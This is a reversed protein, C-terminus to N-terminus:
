VVTLIEDSSTADVVPVWSINFTFTANLTTYIGAPVNVTTVHQDVAATDVFTTCDSTANTLPPITGTWTVMVTQGGTSPVTISDAAPTSAKAIGVVSSRIVASIITATAICAILALVVKMRSSLWHTQSKLSDRLM